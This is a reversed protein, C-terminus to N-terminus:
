IKIEAFEPNSFGNLVQNEVSLEHLRPPIYLQQWWSEQRRRDTGRVVSSLNQQRGRM